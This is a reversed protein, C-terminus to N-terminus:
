RAGLTTNTDADVVREAQQQAEVQELDHRLAEQRWAMRTIEHRLMRVQENRPLGALDPMEEFASDYHGATGGTHHHGMGGMMFLMALPCIALLLFPLAALVLRPDVIWAAIGILAVLAGISLAVSTRNFPSM